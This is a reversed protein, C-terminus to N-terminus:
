EEITVEATMGWLLDKPPQDFAITVKFVVDGGVTNAKPSIGIVKGTFDENLAEVFINVPAGVKVKTIDRESLDTTELQLRDLKALTIVVQSQEIYQGPVANISVVTADSPAILTSQALTAQAVELAAQAQEVRAHAVQRVEPPVVDFFVKGNRRDKVRRYSQVKEEGLASRLAAEAALVNYEAEPTNLVVLTQGATVNDGEKVAVERVLASTLFGLETIQAPVVVASAVVTGGQAAFVPNVVLALMAALSVLASWYFRKM